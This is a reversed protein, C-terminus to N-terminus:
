TQKTGRSSREGGGGIGGNGRMIMNPITPPLGISSMHRIMSVNTVVRKPVRAVRPRPTVPAGKYTKKNYGYGGGNGCRKQGKEKNLGHGGMLSYLVLLMRVHYDLTVRWRQGNIGIALFSGSIIGQVQKKGSKQNSGGKLFCGDLGLILKCGSLWGDFSAKFMVLSRKWQNSQLDKSCNALDMDIVMELGPNHVPLMIYHVEAEETAFINDCEKALDRFEDDCKDIDAQTPGNDSDVSSHNSYYEEKADLSDLNIKVWRNWADVEVVNYSAKRGLGVGGDTETKVPADGGLEVGGESEINPEDDSFYM